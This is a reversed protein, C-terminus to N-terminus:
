LLLMKLDFWNLRIMNLTQMELKFLSYSLEYIQSFSAKSMYYFGVIFHSPVKSDTLMLLSSGSNKTPNPLSGSLGDGGSFFKTM